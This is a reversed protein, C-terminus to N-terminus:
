LFLFISCSEGNRESSVMCGKPKQGVQRFVPGVDSCYRTDDKGGQLVIISDKPVNANKRLRELLRTRNQAFLAAPVALTHEGM